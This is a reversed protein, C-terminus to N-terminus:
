PNDPILSFTLDGRIEAAEDFVEILKFFRHGLLQESIQSNVWVIKVPGEILGVLLDWLADLNKGYFPIKFTIGLFDHIQSESRLISGDIEVIKVEHGV